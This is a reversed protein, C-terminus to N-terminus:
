DAGQPGLRLMSSSPERVWRQRSSMECPLDRPADGDSDVDATLLSSFKWQTIDTIDALFDEIFFFTTSFPKEFQAGSLNEITDIGNKGRVTPRSGEIYGTPAHLISLGDQNLFSLFFVYLNQQQAM